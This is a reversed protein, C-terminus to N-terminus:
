ELNAVLERLKDIHAKMAVVAHAIEVDQAKSGLTNVERLLEQLLFELSRGVEGGQSLLERARQLHAAIRQLEETADVRDAYLAVERIVDSPELARAKDALFENVRAVLKRRYDDLVQPMRREVRDRVAAFAALLDAAATKTAIGERLREAVLVALARELLASFAASPERTARM